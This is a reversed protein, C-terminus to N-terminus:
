QNKGGAAKHYAVISEVFSTLMDFDEIMGKKNDYNRINDIAESVVDKLARAAQEESTLKGQRKRAAAYALKPKLLVISAYISKLSEQPNEQSDLVNSKDVGKHQNLRSKIQRIADLFKRIQNTKLGKEALETGLNEAHKVMSRIEYDSFNKKSIEDKIEQVIGDLKEGKSSPITKKKNSNPQNM